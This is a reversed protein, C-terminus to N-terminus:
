NHLFQLMVTIMSNHRWYNRIGFSDHYRLAENTKNSVLGKVVKMSRMPVLLANCLKLSSKIWIKLQTYNYRERRNISSKISIRTPPWNACHAQLQRKSAETFTCKTYKRVAMLLCNCIAIIIPVRQSLHWFSFFSLCQHFIVVLGRAM